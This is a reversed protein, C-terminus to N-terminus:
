ELFVFHLLDVLTKENLLLILFTELAVAPIKAILPPDPRTGQLM